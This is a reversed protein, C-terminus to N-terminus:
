LWKGTLSEVCTRIQEVSGTAVIQGGDPGAEPGVDIIHDAARILQVFASPTQNLVTVGERCLLDWFADPSRTTLYPVVVVRGGNLLPGWLEWVSFDFCYSHFVSWRDEASISLPLDPHLLLRLVNRQPILM